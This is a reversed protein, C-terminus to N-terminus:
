NVLDDLVAQSLLLEGGSGTFIAEMACSELINDVYAEDGGKAIKILIDKPSEFSEGNDLATYLPGFDLKSSGSAVMNKLNRLQFFGYTKLLRVTTVCRAYKLRLYM